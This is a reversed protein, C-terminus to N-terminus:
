SAIKRERSQQNTMSWKKLVHELQDSEFPKALHDNMGIALCKEKDEPFANATMAIIPIHKSIAHTNTELYDRISQTATFGDMEPMHIDMLIYDLPQNNENMEKVCNVAAQGNPVHEVRAGLKQLVTRALLANIENDEALLVIPRKETQNSKPKNKSDPSTTENYYSQGNLLASNHYDQNLRAFLSVARVPRTLYANMGQKQLAPFESRESVDLIVIKIPTRNLKTQELQHNIEADLKKIRALATATDIILTDFPQGKKGASKITKLAKDGPCHEATMGAAKLTRAIAAMEISLTGVILIKHPLEPLQYAQYITGCGRKSPLRLSICFESGANLKSNITIEGNMKEVIRKTIALGLGTGEFRRAHSSDAQEFDGFITKQAKESLGIGTDRVKIELPCTEEQSNKAFYDKASTNSRPDMIEVTIGGTETFKIANGILNTFIQRMRVEDGILIQPLNPDIVWAIQLNKDHARPALLEIVSQATERIDFPQNDLEHKGAEIKSFDLIQDILSLLSKTSSNIARCYTKQDPSLSTDMMLGTMGLIGNMPTRIEHSITALFQGKAKNASEAQKRAEQLEDEVQKQETIDRGISQIELINLTQDRTAFEEWIYWRPGNQTQLYQQYSRRGQGPEFDFSPAPDGALVEPQFISGLQTNPAGFFIKSFPKNAYTLLGDKNRRIIIDNQSDLLDRYRTESDNLEWQVDSFQEVRQSLETVLHNTRQLKEDSQKSLALLWGSTISVLSAGLLLAAWAPTFAQSLGIVSIVAASLSIILGTLGAALAWRRTPKQQGLQKQEQKVLARARDVLNLQNIPSLEQSTKNAQQPQLAIM